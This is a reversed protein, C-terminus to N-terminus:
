VHVFINNWFCLACGVLWPFRFMCKTKFCDVSDAFSSIKRGNVYFQYEWCQNESIILVAVLSFTYIWAQCVIFSMKLGSHYAHLTVIIHSTPLLSMPINVESNPYTVRRKSGDLRDLISDMSRSVRGNSCLGKSRLRYRRQRGPVLRHFLNFADM